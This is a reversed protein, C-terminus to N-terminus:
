KTRRMVYFRTPWIRFCYSYNIDAIDEYLLNILETENRLISKKSGDINTNQFDDLSTSIIDMVDNIHNNVKDALNKNYSQLLVIFNQIFDTNSNKVERIAKAKEVNSPASRKNKFKKIAKELSGNIQSYYDSIKDINPQIIITFYWNDKINKKQENIAKRRDFIYIIFTLLVAITSILNAYSDQALFKEVTELTNPSEQITLTDRPVFIIQPYKALSDNLNIFDIYNFPQNTNM